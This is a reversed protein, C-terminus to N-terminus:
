GSDTSKPAQMQWRYHGAEPIWRGIVEECATPLRVHRQKSRRTHYRRKTEQSRSFSFKELVCTDNLHFLAKHLYCSHCQQDQNVKHVRRDLSDTSNASVMKKHCGHYCVLYTCTACTQFGQSRRPYGEPIPPVTRAPEFSKM